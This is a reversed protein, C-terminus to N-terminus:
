LTLLEWRIEGEHWHATPALGAAAAVAASAHHAPHIHARIARVGQAQLRVVLGRAAETAIGRGQWRTGIVWAVDATHGRDGATITAQVTGALSKDARLQVVWNWWTQSPDPSGAVLRAYRARLAQASYPAGGTFEHLAPDALVDAMEEAHGVALPVLSLRGTEVAEIKM